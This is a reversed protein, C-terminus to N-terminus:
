YVQILIELQFGDDSLETNSSLVTPCHSALLHSPKYCEGFLVGKGVNKDSQKSEFRSLM